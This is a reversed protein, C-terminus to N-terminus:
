ELEENNFFPYLGAHVVGRPNATSDMKQEEMTKEPKTDKTFFHPSSHRRQLMSANPKFEKEEMKIFRVRPHEFSKREEVMNNNSQEPRHISLNEM